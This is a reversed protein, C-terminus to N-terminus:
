QKNNIITTQCYVQKTSNDPAANKSWEYEKHEILANASINAFNPIVTFNKKSIVNLQVNFNYVIVVHKNKLVRNISETSPCNNM